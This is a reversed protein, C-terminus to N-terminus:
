KWVSRNLKHLEETYQKKIEYYKKSLWHKKDIYGVLNNYEPFLAVFKCNFSLSDADNDKLCFVQQVAEYELYGIKQAISDQLHYFEGIDNLIYYGDKIKFVNFKGLYPFTYRPKREEVRPYERHEVIRKVVLITDRISGFMTFEDNTHIYDYWSYLSRHAEGIHNQYSALSWSLDYKRSNNMTEDDSTKIKFVTDLPYLNYLCGRPNFFDGTVIEVIFYLSDNLIQWKRASNVNESSITNSHGKNVVRLSDFQIFLRYWLKTKEVPEIFTYYLGNDKQITEVPKIKNQSFLQSFGLTVFAVTILIYKM